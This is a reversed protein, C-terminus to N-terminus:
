TSLAPKLMKPKLAPRASHIRYTPTLWRKALAERRQVHREVDLEALRHVISEVAKDTVRPSLSRPTPYRETLRAAHRQELHRGRSYFRSAFAADAEHSAAAPKPPPPRPVPHPPHLRAVVVDPDVSPKAKAENEAGAPAAGEARSTTGHKRPLPLHLKPPMVTALRRAPSGNVADHYDRSGYYALCAALAADGKRQATAAGKRSLGFSPYKRTLDPNGFVM